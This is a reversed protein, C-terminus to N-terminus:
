KMNKCQLGQQKAWVFTIKYSHAKHYVSHIGANDLHRVKLCKERDKLSFLITLIIPDTVQISLISIFLSTKTKKGLVLNLNTKRM